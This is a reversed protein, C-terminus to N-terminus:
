CANRKSKATCDQAGARGKAETPFAQARCTFGASRTSPTQKAKGDNQRCPGREIFIRPCYRCAVAGKPPAIPRRTILPTAQAAGSIQLSAAARGLWWKKM